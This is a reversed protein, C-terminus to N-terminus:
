PTKFPHNSPSSRLIAVKGLFDDNPGCICTNKFYKSLIKAVNSLWERIAM